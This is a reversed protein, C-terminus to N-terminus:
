ASELTSLRRRMSQLEAVIHAMVDASGYEVGQYVPVIETGTENGNEDRTPREQMADKEGTVSSPSVAQLEHAIFGTGPEGNEKWIWRRPLLADIFAGSEGLDTIEDKLRYDSSTNYAVNTANQSISGVTAAGANSFAIANTQVNTYPMFTMGNLWDGHGRVTVIAPTTYEAGGVALVGTVRTSRTNIEFLGGANAGNGAVSLRTDWDLGTGVHFDVYSGIELGGNVQTSIVGRRLRLLEELPSGAGAGVSAAGYFAHEGNTMAHLSSGGVGKNIWASGNHFTNQALYMQAGDTGMGSGPGLDFTTMGTNWASPVVKFGFRRSTDIRMAEAGAVVVALPLQTGSGSAGSHLMAAANTVQVGTYAANTPNSNNYAFFGGTTGTGNPICAVTTFGNATSTQFLLLNTLTSDSFNGRIRQGNSPFTVNRDTEIRLADGNVNFVIPLQIGTGTKNSHITVATTNIQLGGWATNAVDPNNYAFWGAIRSTGNPIAVVSTEADATITQFMVADAGTFDGRIRAGPRLINLSGTLDVSLADVGNTSVILPLYAGTGVRGAALRVAAVDASLVGQAANIADAGAYAAFSPAQVQGTLVGGTLPLYGALAASQPVVAWQSGDYLMQDGAIVTDGGIGLWSGDAVATTDAVYFWGVVPAAPAPNAPNVTGKYLLSNNAPMMSVDIKGNSNLRPYKGADAAGASSLTNPLFTNDLLGGANTKILRNATAVGAGAQIGAFDITNPAIAKNAVTRAAVEAANAFTFNVAGVVSPCSLAPTVGDGIRMDVTAGSRIIAAEGNGLILNNATWDAQSGIILRTRALIDAM